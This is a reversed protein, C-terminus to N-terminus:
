AGSASTAQSASTAVAASIASISRTNAGDAHDDWQWTHALPLGNDDDGGFLFLKDGLTGMAAGEWAPPAHAPAAPM